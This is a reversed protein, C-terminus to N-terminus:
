GNISFGEKEKARAARRENVWDGYDKWIEVKQPYTPITSLGSTSTAVFVRAGKWPSNKKGKGVDDDEDGSGGGDGDDDGSVGMNHREDQWGYKFEEKKIKRGYWHRWIGEWIAKGVICVSEPKFRRVKAELAPTGAAMEGEALEGIDRSPRGVINTNGMQYLRPLHQDYIPRCLRDTIGSAHLLKWFRNSPHAYAHGATATAIGPNFGVFIGVLNPEIIDTLGKLHAYKSPDAYTSSKNTIATTTAMTMTRATTATTATTTTTTKRRKATVSSTNKRRASKSAGDGGDSSANASSVAADSASEEEEDEEDGDRSSVSSLEEKEEEDLVGVSSKRDKAKRLPM